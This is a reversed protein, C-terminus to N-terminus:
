RKKSKCKKDLVLYFGYIFNEKKYENETIDKAFSFRKWIMWITFNKKKLFEM